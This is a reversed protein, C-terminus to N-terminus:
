TLTLASSKSITSMVTQVCAALDATVEQNSFRLVQWGAGILWASKRADQEQRALPCHSGGDVEIAMMLHPNAIDLKYHTPRGAQRPRGTKVVFEMEWGLAEALLRQPETPGRGNGGRRRPRHGRLRLTESMRSRVEPDQMPNRTRMRESLRRREEEPPSGRRRTKLAATRCPGSCIARGSRKFYSRQNSTLLFALGCISCPAERPEGVM